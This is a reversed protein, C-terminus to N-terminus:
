APAMHLMYAGNVILGHEASESHRLYVSKTHEHRAAVVWVAGSASSRWRTGIEARQMGRSTPIGIVALNVAFCIAAFLGICAFIGVVTVGM